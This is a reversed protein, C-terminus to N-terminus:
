YSCRSVLCFLSILCDSLIHLFWHFAKDYSVFYSQSQEQGTYSFFARVTRELVCLAPVESEDELFVNTVDISSKHLQGTQFLKLTNLICKTKYGERITRELDFGRM